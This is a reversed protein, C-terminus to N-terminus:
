DTDDDFQPKQTLGSGLGTATAVGAPLYGSLFDRLRETQAGIAMTVDSWADGLSIWPLEMWGLKHGLYGIALLALATVFALKFFLRVSAGVLFGGLCGLGSRFGFSGWDIEGAGAAPGFLKWGGGAVLGLLALRLLWRKFFSLRTFATRFLTRVVDLM